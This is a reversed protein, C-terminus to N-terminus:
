LLLEILAAKKTRRGATYKAFLIMKKGLLSQM